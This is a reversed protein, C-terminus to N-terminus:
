LPSSSQLQVSFICQFSPDTIQLVPCHFKGLCLLLFFFSTKFLSSLKISRHSLILCFLQMIPIESLSFMSFPVFFTHSYIIASFKGVRSVSGLLGSLEWYSSFCSAIHQSFQTLGDATKKSLVRYSLGSTLSASSFGSPHSKSCKLCRTNQSIALPWRHWCLSSAFAM